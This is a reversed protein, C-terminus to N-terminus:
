HKAANSNNLFLRLPWVSIDFIFIQVYTHVDIKIGSISQVHCQIRCRRLGTEQGTEQVQKVPILFFTLSMKFILSEILNQNMGDEDLWRRSM